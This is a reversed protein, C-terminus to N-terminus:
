RRRVPSRSGAFSTSIGFPTSASSNLGPEPRPPGRAARSGPRRRGDGGEDRGEVAGVVELAEVDRDVGEGPEAVRAHVQDDGAAALQEVAEAGAGGLGPDRVADVEEAGHRVGLQGATSRAASRKRSVM